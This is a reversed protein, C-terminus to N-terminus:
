TPGRLSLLPLTTIGAPVTQPSGAPLITGALSAPPVYDPQDTDGFSSSDPVSYAVGGGGNGSGGGRATSSTFSRSGCATATAAAAAAPAGRSDMRRMQLLKKEIHAM